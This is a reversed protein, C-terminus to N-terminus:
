NDQRLLQEANKIAAESIESGSLMQAIESVREQANLRRMHSTTGNTQEEKYVKYHSAGRAAIQPLHTISIVQRDNDGMEQMIRAMMEAVKGSVGTDIEDFIITPLKVAGSIMAKLSLMVRAIEGGSAVQAVPQLPTSTNATFLFSVKDHGDAALPKETLSVEFRVKPIGLPVLRQRMEEEVERAAALRLTTLRTAQQECKAQLVNKKEELEHLLEDSGDIHSLQQQFDDRLAILESVSGVHHKQQLHYLTDLRNSVEEMRAPNFDIHEAHRSIEDAIDKVEIYSSELRSAVETIDPFVNSVSDISHIASKLREVVGGDGYFLNDAEFLASKIEEAHSLISYAQELEEQEGEVLRAEDLEHHQFRLYDETESSKRITERLEELEKNAQRLAQYTAAYDATDKADGAIIDVVHLQFDDRQLLLNQHQSHIDVLQSGLERMTTLAVPTDNIFARSKGSSTVERRLICDGDDYDLDKEEFFAQMDYRRLDFQAEVVCRERGAKITKSDARQGLLLGLAGLIISKGAGTEGTIVSFGGDFTIDLEDILTFNKIFLRQLM